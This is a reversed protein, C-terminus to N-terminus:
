IAASSLFTPAYFKASNIFKKFCVNSGHLDSAFFMKVESNTDKAKKRWFM